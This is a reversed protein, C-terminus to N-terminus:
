ESKDTFERYWEEKSSISYAWGVLVATLFLVDVFEM